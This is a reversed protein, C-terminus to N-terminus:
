KSTKHFEEIVFQKETKENGDKDNYKRTQIKGKIFLNDGKKLKKDMVAKAITGYAVCKTWETKQSKEGSKKNTWIENSAINVIAVTVTENNEKSLIIDPETGLTGLCSFDIFGLM